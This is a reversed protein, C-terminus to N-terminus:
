ISKLERVAGPTVAGSSPVPGVARDDQVPVAEVLPEHLMIELGNGHAHLVRGEAAKVARMADVRAVPPALAQQAETVTLWTLYPPFFQIYVGPTFTHRTTERGIIGHM